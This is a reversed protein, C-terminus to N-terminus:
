QRYGQPPSYPPVPPQYSSSTPYAGSQSLGPTGPPQQVWQATVEEWTTNAVPRGDAGVQYMEGTSGDMFVEQEVAVEKVKQRAGQFSIGTEGTFAVSGDMKVNFDFNMNVSSLKAGLQQCMSKIANSGYYERLMVKQKRLLELDRQLGNLAAMLGAQFEPDKVLDKRHVNLEILLKELTTLIEALDQKLRKRNVKNVYFERDTNITSYIQDAMTSIKDFLTKQSSTKSTPAANAVLRTTMFTPNHQVPVVQPLPPPQRAAPPSQAQQAYQPQQPHAPQQPYQPQQAYQPQAPQQVPPAHDAPPQYPPPKSQNPPNLRPDSWSTQRTVHNMFFQCGQQDIRLEWPPLLPYQLATRPDLWTTSRTNHDIFYTQGSATFGHSWNPPLFSM